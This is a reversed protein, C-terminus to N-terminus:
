KPQSTKYSYTLEEFFTGTGKARFNATQGGYQFCRQLTAVNYLVFLSFCSKEAELLGIIMQISKKKYTFTLEEFFRKIGKLELSSRKAAM